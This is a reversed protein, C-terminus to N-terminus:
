GQVNAELLRINRLSNAIVPHMGTTRGDSVIGVEEDAYIDDGPSCSGAEAYDKRCPIAITPVSVKWNLMQKLTRPGSNAIGKKM